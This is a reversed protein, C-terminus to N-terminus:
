THHYSKILNLFKSFFKIMFALQIKDCIKGVDILIIYKKKM